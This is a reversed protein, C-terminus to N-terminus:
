STQPGFAITWGAKSTDRQSIDFVVWVSSTWFSVRAVGVSVFPLVFRDTNASPHMHTHTYTSPTDASPEWSFRVRVPFLARAAAKDRM